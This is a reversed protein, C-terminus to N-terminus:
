AAERDREDLLAEFARRIRETVVSAGERKGDSVAGIVIVDDQEGVWGYCRLYCEEETLERLRQM